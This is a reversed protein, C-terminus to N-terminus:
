VRTSEPPGLYSPRVGGLDVVVKHLVVGPELAWVKITSKGAPVRHTTTKKWAADSVAQGWGAPMDLPRASPVYLNEVPTDDNVAVAYRLPRDPDFNLTPSLYLTINAKDHPNFAYVDYELKPANAPTLRATFDVPFITVSSSTKSLNKLLQYYVSKESGTSNRTFNPADISITKRSEVFGRFGSTVSTKNTLVSVSPAGFNGWDSTSNVNVRAIHYGEPAKSWDISVEVRVDQQSTARFRGTTQSLKVWPADPTLHWTLDQNGKSFVDIWRTKEGYPELVPLVLTDNGYGVTNYRDDGPISGNSSEVTLGLSGALSNELLQVYALPPLTNRMPQQWYNYGLHTQSMFHNWKGGLLTHYEQTLKHDDNFRKLVYEALSNASNRRQNAYLNNRAANIHIDIVIYGAKAPHYILEFVAPKYAGPVKKWLNEGDEALQKWEALIKDAERYEIINYTNPDTLEFKRRATAKGYREVLNAAEKAYKAGFNIKAWELTWEAVTNPKGWKDFDYALSLFYNTPIEKPKISGVNVVWINRAHKQYALHMQEWTKENQITNIWKYDRPDGVYDFHYYVGAGGIRATENGTPLRRINGWNDDTWLLTIDDPVRM